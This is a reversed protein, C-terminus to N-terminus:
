KKEENETDDLVSKICKDIVEENHNIIRTRYMLYLLILMQNSSIAFIISIASDSDILEASYAFLNLIAAVLQIIAIVAFFKYTATTENIINKQKKM